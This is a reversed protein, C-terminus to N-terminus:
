YNSNQIQKNESNTLIMHDNNTKLSYAYEAYHIVVNNLNHTNCYITEHIANFTNNKNKLYLLM